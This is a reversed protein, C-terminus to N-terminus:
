PRPFFLRRYNASTLGAANEPQVGLLSALVRIVEAV